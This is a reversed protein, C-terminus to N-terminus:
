PKSALLEEVDSSQDLCHAFVPGDSVGADDEINLDHVAGFGIITNANHRQGDVCVPRRERGSIIWRQPGQQILRRFVTSCLKHTEKADFTSLILIACVGKGRRLVAGDNRGSGRAFPTAKYCLGRESSPRVSVSFKAILFNSSHTALSKVCSLAVSVMHPSKAVMAFVGLVPTSASSWVSSVNQCSFQTRTSSGGALLLM